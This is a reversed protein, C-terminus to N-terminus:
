AVAEGDRWGDKKEQSVAAITKISQIKIKENFFNRESWRLEINPKEDTDKEPFLITRISGFLLPCFVLSTEAGGMCSTSLGGNAPMCEGDKDGDGGEGTAASCSEHGIGPQTVYLPVPFAVTENKIARKAVLPIPHIVASSEPLRKQHVDDLCMANLALGRHTINSIGVLKTTPISGDQGTRYEIMENSITPLLSAVKPNFRAVARQTSRLGYGQIEM